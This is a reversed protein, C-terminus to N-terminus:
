KIRKMRLTNKFYGKRILKILQKPTPDIQYLKEGDVELSDVPLEQSLNKLLSNFSGEEVDMSMYTLDGNEEQKVVRMLWEPDENVNIFYYGKYQKLVLSDGLVSEKKDSAIRYGKSNIFVTDESNDGVATMIYTGHLKKPIEKLSKKGKPQPEQFSIEKCGILITLFTAFAIIKFTM